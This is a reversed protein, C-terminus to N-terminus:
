LLKLVPQCLLQAAYAHLGHESCGKGGRGAQEAHAIGLGRQCIVHQRMGVSRWGCAQIKHTVLAGLAACQVHKQMNCLAKGVLSYQGCVIGGVAWSRSSAPWNFVASVGATCRCVKGLAVTSTHQKTSSDPPESSATAM